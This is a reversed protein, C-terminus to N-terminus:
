NTLKEWDALKAKSAGSADFEDKVCKDCVANVESDTLARKYLRVESMSGNFYDHQGFGIKLSSNNSIDYDAPNFESSTKVLSGDIYLKLHHGNRVAALHRWGPVLQRDYTVCKGAEISKILGSPLVSCFLRGDYIAMTYARRLPWSPLLRSDPTTDLQGLDTWTNARDFRYVKAKPLSGAYLKGNYVIMGMSERSTEVGQGENNLEGCSIWGTGGAYRFIRARPWSSVYLNGEYIMQSYLQTTNPPMGFFQIGTRKSYRACQAYTLYLSNNFASISFIDGTTGCKTWTQGGAYHYLGMDPGRLPAGYLGGDFVVLSFIGEVKCPDAIPKILLGCYTWTTGGEYRYINGGVNTNPSAGQVLMSGTNGPYHATGVYLKGDYVAMAWISNSLDPSGCYVWNDVGAYRYVSGAEKAGWEFTGAYLNGDYVAMSTALIANGPRGCSTWNPEIRANDIGFFVNRYNSQSGTVGAYNMISFNFGKRSNSDYNSIIDGIVDRLNPDTYVWMSVSFDEVGFDLLNTKALEIYNDIGNFHAATHIQGNRVESYVVGHGVGHNGHGSYDKTDGALKWYGILGANLNADAGKGEVPMICFLAIILYIRSIFQSM